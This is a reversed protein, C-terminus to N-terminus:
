DTRSDPVKGYWKENLEILAKWEMDQDYDEKDKSKDDEEEDFRDQSQDSAAVDDLSKDGISVGAHDFMDRAAQIADEKSKERAREQMEHWEAEERAAIRESRLRLREGWDGEAEIVRSHKQYMKAMWENDDYEDLDDPRCARQNERLDDLDERLDKLQRDVASDKGPPWLFRANDYM